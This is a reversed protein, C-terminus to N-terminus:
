KKTKVTKGLNGKFYKLSFVLAYIFSIVVGIITAVYELLFIFLGPVLLAILVTGTIGRTKNVFMFVINAILLIIILYPFFPIKIFIGLFFLVFITIRICVQTLMNNMEMKEMVATPGSTSYSVTAGGFLVALNKSNFLLKFLAYRPKITVGERWMKSVAGVVSFFKGPGDEGEIRVWNPGYIRDGEM